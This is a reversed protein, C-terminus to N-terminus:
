SSDRKPPAATFFILHVFHVVTNSIRFGAIGSGGAAEATREAASGERSSNASSSVASV